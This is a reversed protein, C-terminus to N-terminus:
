TSYSAGTTSTISTTSSAASCRRSRTPKGRHGDGPGLRHHGAQGQPSIYGSSGNAYPRTTRWRTRGRGSSRCGAWAARQRAAAARRALHPAILPRRRRSARIARPPRPFMVDGDDQARMSRFKFVRIPDNNYGHRTQMYFVPGPSDLKIALTVLALAPSLLLLGVGAALLDFARKLFLDFASLPARALQITVVEGLESIRAAGLQDSFDAPVAHLAAPLESLLEALRQHRPPEGFARPDRHRRTAGCPM